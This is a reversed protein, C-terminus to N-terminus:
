MIYCVNFNRKMKKGNLNRERENKRKVGGQMHEKNTQTKQKKKLPSGQITSLKTEEKASFQTGTQNDVLKSHNTTCLYYKKMYKKGEGTITVHRWQGQSTFDNAWNASDWSNQGDSKRNRDDNWVEVVEVFPLLQVLSQFHSLIAFAPRLLEIPVIGKVSGEDTRRSMHRDTSEIRKTPLLKSHFSLSRYSWTVIHM